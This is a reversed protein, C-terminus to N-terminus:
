GSYYISPNIIPVEKNPLKTLNMNKEKLMINLQETNNKSLKMQTEILKSQNTMTLCLDNLLIKVKGLEDDNIESEDYLKKIYEPMMLYNKKYLIDNTEIGKKPSDDMWAKADRNDVPFIKECKRNLGIKIKEGKPKVKKVFDDSTFLDMNKIEALEDDLLVSYKNKFYMTCYKVLRYCLQNVESPNRFNRSHPYISISKDNNNKITVGKFEKWETYKPIWNNLKERIEWEDGIIKGEIIPIKIHLAHLDSEERTGLSSKTSALTEAVEIAREESYDKKLVWFSNATYSIEGEAKLKSVYRNMAQKSMNLKNAINTMNKCRISSYSFKNIESLITYYVLKKNVRIRKQKSNKNLFFDSM